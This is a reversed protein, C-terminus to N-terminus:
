LLSVLPKVLQPDLSDNKFSADFKPTCSQCSWSSGSCRIMSVSICMSSSGCACIKFVDLWWSSCDWTEKTGIMIFNAGKAAAEMCYYGQSFELAALDPCSCPFWLDVFTWAQDASSHSLISGSNLINSSQLGPLRWKPGTSARNLNAATQVLDFIHTGQLKKAVHSSFRNQKAGNVSGNKWDEQKGTSLSGPVMTPMSTNWCKPIGGLDVSLLANFTGDDLLRNLGNMWWFKWHHHLLVSVNVQFWVNRM